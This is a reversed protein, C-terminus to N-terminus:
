LFIQHNLIIRNIVEFLPEDLTQHQSQSNGVKVKQLSLIWYRVIKFKSPSLSFGLMCFGAAFM